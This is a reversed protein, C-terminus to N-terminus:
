SLAEPLAREYAARADDIALRATADGVRLEIGEGGVQGIRAIRVADGEPALARLREAAAEDAVTVVIRGGGEGFLVEDARRGPELAVTAGVGGIIASEALTVAIGGGSVDHASTLLGAEAARVVLDIAAVERAVDVEPARGVAGGAYESGDLVGDDGILLVLDGARAFGQGVSADARELVGMMGVVPTPLIARTASENYLSVNGSVVPVGLAVLADTMGAIAEALRWGTSGKEPNPFNLCDTAAVARAGVCAVNRAAELVSARGGARPDLECLREACDTTLAIARESGPLRVVAADGGPRRITNAGVLHDYREWVWRKSAVNPHGLLELWAASLDAPEPLTGLDLPEPVPAPTRPVEYVPADDALLRAPLDVVVEGGARAVLNGGETVTGIATADLDWRRCAAIVEDVRAPEVVALMREQSESVLIEAPRLEERLPVLDLDIELGVGGKAAMESAASTLGAAGLDQLAVFAGAAALELCCDMLKRETFPDSVQVSPRKDEDEDLEASALVSAGGIGDAGTRNGILVLANGAGSAAARLLPGEVVGVCMANVLCSEEYRDHFLVEGGVTPVGICNGYHGIGAVARTFLHRSRASTLEGFRLSDLLAIPRAGMAIIDRVIGGVGTAAGEFPEVASPHNHSEIKLAVAIGDGVDVVGANEGPGQLVREGTTPFAKLLPRSHKYSCHESWMLSFMVLEPDTPERGLLRPIREAEDDTLGLQRHLPVDVTSM